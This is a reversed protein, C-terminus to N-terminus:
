KGGERMAAYLERAWLRFDQNAGGNIFALLFERARAADKEAAEVRALLADFLSGAEANVNIQALLAAELETIKAEKQGCRKQACNRVADEKWRLLAAREDALRKIANLPKNGTSNDLVDADILAQTIEAWREPLGYRHHWSGCNCAPIDCEVFGGRRLVDTLRAVEAVDDRHVSHLLRIATLTRATSNCGDEPLGLEADIAALATITASVLEKDSM